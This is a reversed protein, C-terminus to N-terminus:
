NNTQIIYKDVFQPKNFKETLQNPARLYIYTDGGSIGSNFCLIFTLWKSIGTFVLTGNRRLTINNM